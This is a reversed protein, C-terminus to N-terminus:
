LLKDIEPEDLGGRRRVAGVAAVACNALSWAGSIPGEHRIVAVACARRRSMETGRCEIGAISGAAPAVAAYWSLVAALNHIALLMTHMELPLIRAM